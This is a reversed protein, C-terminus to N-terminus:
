ARARLCTTSRASEEEAPPPPEVPPTEEAADAAAEAPQVDDPASPVAPGFSSSVAALAEPNAQQLQALKDEVWLKRVNTSEALGFSTKAARDSDFSEGFRIALALAVVSTNTRSNKTLIPPTVNATQCAEIISLAAAQEKGTPRKCADIGPQRLNVEVDSSWRVRKRDPGPETVGEAPESLRRSREAM